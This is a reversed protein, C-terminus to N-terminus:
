DANVVGLVFDVVTIVASIACAVGLTELFTADKKIASFALASM